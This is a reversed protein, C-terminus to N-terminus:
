IHTCIHIDVYYTINLNQVNSCIHILITRRIISSFEINGFSVKERGLDVLWKTNHGEHQNSTTIRLSYLIQIQIKRVQYFTNSLYTVSTLYLLDEFILDAHSSLVGDGALYPM